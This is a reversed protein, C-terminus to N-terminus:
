TQTDRYPWPPLLAPQMRLGPQCHDSHTTCPASREQAWSQRGEQKRQGRWVKVKQGKETKGETIGPPQVSPWQERQEQRKERGRWTWFWWDTVGSMWVGGTNNKKEKAVKAAPECWKRRIEVAKMGTRERKCGESSDGVGKWEEGGRTKQSTHVEQNRFSNESPRRNMNLHEPGPLIFLETNMYFIYGVYQLKTDQGSVKVGGATRCEEFNRSSRKWQSTPWLTFMYPWWLGLLRWHRSWVWHWRFAAKNEGRSERKNEGATALWDQKQKNSFSQRLFDASFQGFTVGLRGGFGKTNCQMEM